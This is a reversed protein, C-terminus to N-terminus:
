SNMDKGAELKKIGDALVKKNQDDPAQALALKAHKLADKYRGVASYGRALGVNVPWANPHRKANLEFVKLAEEKKGQALLQRGAQHLEVPGAPYHNLARQRTAAADATKGAAEQAQALTNLTQFNEVGIFQRNVAADAFELADNTRKVQMAYQAAAVWNQWNFGQFNRLEDRIRALHLDTANDVSITIPVQLEEWKLAVTAKDPHRDTFEYTLWENYEAKSPKVKVRLADEKADYFYHGWSAHNKSFIVTWEEPGPEMFLGYSGAALPQGEVKVDHSVTFVTNQNAGARWPCETCTGFPDDPAGMPVLTGWIKGRRDSGDPAHVDPSSYDITVEVLGIHQSVSSKQNDGSFPTSIAQAAANGALLAALVATLSLSAITTTRM